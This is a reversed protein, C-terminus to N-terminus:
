CDEGTQALAAERRRVESRQRKGLETRILVDNVRVLDIIRNRRSGFFATKNYVNAGPGNAGNTRNTGKTGIPGNPGM